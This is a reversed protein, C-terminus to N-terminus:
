GHLDAAQGSAARDDAGGDSAELEFRAEFAGYLRHLILDGSRRARAAGAVGLERELERISRSLAPQSLGLHKAAARMSGKEVVALLDRM